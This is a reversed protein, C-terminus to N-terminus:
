CNGRVKIGKGHKAKPGGEDSGESTAAAEPTSEEGPPCEASDQPSGDSPGNDARKSTKKTGKKRIKQKPIGAGDLFIAKSEGGRDLLFHYEEPPFNTLM